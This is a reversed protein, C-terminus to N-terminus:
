RSRVYRLFLESEARLIGALRMDMSSASASTASSIRRADGSELTPAVTLCLEDVAQAEIFSGFLSPGGESHVRTLGRSALDKRIRDPAIAHRGTTVVDAVEELASRQGWSSDEVTYVIPRVPAETFIPSAPDLDLRGSVLAFVPHPPLGRETRWAVSAEDLCMAGYGEDRATGAGLLVAHAPRRLLDFVRRDAEDGLGGSRGSRTAAGDPSAIFNMRVWLRDEPFPYAKLIGEDGLHEEPAPWLRDIAASM